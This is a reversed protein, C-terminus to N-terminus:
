KGDPFEHDKDVKYKKNLGQNGEDNKKIMGSFNFTPDKILDNPLSPIELKSELGSESSPKTESVYSSQPDNNSTKHEEKGKAEGEGGNKKVDERIVEDIVSAMEKKKVYISSSGLPFGKLVFSECMDDLAESLNENKKKEKSNKSKNAKEELKKSVEYLVDTLLCNQELEMYMADELFYIMSGSGFIDPPLPYMALSREFITESSPVKYLAKIDDYSPCKPFTKIDKTFTSGNNDSPFHFFTPPKSAQKM